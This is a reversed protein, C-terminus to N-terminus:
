TIVIKFILYFSSTFISFYSCSGGSILIFLAYRPCLMWLLKLTTSNNCDLYKVLTNGNENENEDWNQHLFRGGLRDWGMWASHRYFITTLGGMKCAQGKGKAPIRENDWM